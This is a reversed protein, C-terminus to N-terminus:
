LPEKDRHRIEFVRMVRVVGETLHERAVTGEELHFSGNVFGTVRIHWVEDAGLHCQARIDNAPWSPEPRGPM